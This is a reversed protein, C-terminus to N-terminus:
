KIIIILLYSNDIRDTTFIIDRYIIFYLEFIRLMIM